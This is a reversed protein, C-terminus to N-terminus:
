TSRLVTHLTRCRYGHQSSLVVLVPLVNSIIYKTSKPVFVSHENWSVGVCGRKSFLSRVFLTAIRVNEEQERAIVFDSVSLSSIYFCPVQVLVQVAIEASTSACTVATETNV